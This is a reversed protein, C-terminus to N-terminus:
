RLAPNQVSINVGLRDHNQGERDVEKTVLRTNTNWAENRQDEM